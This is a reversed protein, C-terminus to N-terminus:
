PLSATEHHDMKTDWMLFSYKWPIIYLDNLWLDVRFHVYCDHLYLYQSEMCISQYEHYYYWQYERHYCWTLVLTAFLYNRSLFRSAHRNIAWSARSGISSYWSQYDHYEYYQLHETYFVWDAMSASLREMVNHRMCSLGMYSPSETM